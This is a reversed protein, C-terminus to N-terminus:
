KLTEKKPQKWIFKNKSNINLYPKQKIIYDLETTNARTNTM